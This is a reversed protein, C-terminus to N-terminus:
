RREAIVQRATNYVIGADKSGSAILDLERDLESVEDRDFTQVAFENKSWTRLNPLHLLAMDRSSKELTVSKSQILTWETGAFAETLSVGVNLDQGYHSQMENVMEYYRNLTPNSSHLAETEHLILLARTEAIHAWLQLASRPSRLHTLLFRCFLLDPADILFPTQLADHHMFELQPHNSRAEAVYRESADLGVTRKPNLTAALLHTSWGPGCGLDFALQFSHDHRLSRAALLLDRTEPEYIEALCRLRRSAEDTDGFTYDM